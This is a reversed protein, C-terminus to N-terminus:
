VQEIMYINEPQMLALQRQEKKAEEFSNYITDEKEDVDVPIYAVIKYKGSNPYKVRAAM